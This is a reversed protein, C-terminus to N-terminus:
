FKVGAEVGFEAPAGVQAFAIGLASTVDQANSYYFQDTVNEGYVAVTYRDSKDAWTVRANLLGYGRQFEYQGNAAGYFVSSRYNYDVRPTLSGYRGLDFRYDAGAGLTLEPTVPLRASKPILTLPNLDTYHTHTYGVNLYLNAERVPKLTTELEFGKIENRGANINNFFGSAPDLVLLQIGKYISYFLAGNVRLHRDLLDSKFGLEYAYLDEPNYPQIPNFGGFQNANPRGNFGGSKFGQSYSGYFLLNNEPKWQLGLKPTFEGFSKKYTTPVGVNPNNPSLTPIYGLPPIGFFSFVGGSNDLFFDFSQKKHEYTYRAGLTAALKGTININAQGFGAINDIGLKFRQNNRICGGANRTPGGPGFPAGLNTGLCIGNNHGIGEEYAYVGAVYDIRGDFLKGLFQLEASYQDSDTAFLNDYLRYGTGDFDNNADQKTKRYALILKTAVPGMDYDVTTSVGWNDTNYKPAVSNFNLFKNPSTDALLDRPFPVGVPTTGPIAAGASPNFAVLVTQATGGRGHLGDAAVTVKLKDTPKWVAKLRATINHVDGFTNGTYVNRGWGDQNRTGVSLRVGLTDSLPADVSVFGDYRNREGFTARARVGFTDAPDLSTLSIAGGITNRGFLTGQPGRLVEVRALDFADLSAGQLRGLYVGDMYVGVGPDNAPNSDLQGIGRIFFFADNGGTPGSTRSLNPTVDAVDGVTRAGLAELTASNYATVAIPVSQVNEARRRATVVIDAIGGTDPAATAAAPTNPAADQAFALSPAILAAVPILLRVRM